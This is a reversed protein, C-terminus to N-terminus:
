CQTREVAIVPSRFLPTRHDCGPAGCPGHKAWFTYIMEPGEYRFKKREEPPISLPDFDMGMKKATEVSYWHGTEGDPGETTYFPM